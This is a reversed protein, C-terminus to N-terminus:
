LAQNRKNNRRNNQQEKMTAWRCNDPSYGKDNNKRDITLKDSYGNQMAWNYFASFDDIWEDCVTIGRGGYNAYAHANPNGCRQKMSNWIRYLRTHKKGHRYNRETANQSVKRIRECGCSNLKGYTFDSGAGVFEKGCKCRFRWYYRGNRNEEVCVALVGGSNVQGTIDKFTPM